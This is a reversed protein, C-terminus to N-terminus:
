HQKYWSSDLAELESRIIAEEQLHCYISITQLVDLSSVLIVRSHDKSYQYCKGFNEKEM